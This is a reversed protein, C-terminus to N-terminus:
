PCPAGTNFNLVWSNFDQPTCLNDGNQDCVAVNQTNFALVWGNFDAPTVIGDGNTDACPPTPAGEGIITVGAGLPDPCAVAAAFDTVEISADWVNDVTGLGESFDGGENLSGTPCVNAGQGWYIGENSGTGTNALCGGVTDNLTPAWFMTQANNTSAFFQNFIDGTDGPVGDGDTDPGESGAYFIEFTGDPRGDGDRDGSPFVGFDESGLGDLVGDGDLDANTLEEAFLTYYGAGSADLIDDDGDGDTDINAFTVIVGGSFQDLLGDGDTDTRDYPSDNVGDGDTDFGDFGDIDAVLDVSDYMTFIIFLPESGQSGDCSPFNTTTIFGSFNENGALASADVEFDDAVAQVAFDDGFFLRNSAAGPGTAGGCLDGCAPDLTGDGDTDALGAGNYVVQPVIGGRAAAGDPRVYDRKEGLVLRNDMTIGKIAQVTTPYIAQGATKTQMDPRAVQGQAACTALGACALIMKTKM